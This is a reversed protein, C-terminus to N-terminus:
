EIQLKETDAIEMLIDDLTPENSESIETKLHKHHPFTEIEPHHHANDYRFILNNLSDMYHYRYKVKEPKEVNIVESFELQNNSEFTIKGTIFGQKENYIKKTLTYSSIIAFSSITRELSEFYTEIM